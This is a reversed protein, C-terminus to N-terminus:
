CKKFLTGLVSLGPGFALSPIYTDKKINSNKRLLDLVFILTASSMNGYNKLTDYSAYCTSKDINLADIISQLIMPGGPHIAWYKIDKATIKKIPKQIKYDDQDNSNNPNNYEITNLLKDVFQNINLYIQQPIEKSLGIIMGTSTLDWKMMDLTNKINTTIDNHIQYIPKENTVLRNNYCGIIMAGAGDSFLATAILNDVNNSSQMHLSCLECCVLLVRNNINEYALAKACKIGALAGFCGMFQISLRQIDNSLNKIGNM